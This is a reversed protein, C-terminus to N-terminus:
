VSRELIGSVAHKRKNFHGSVSPNELIKTPINLEALGRYIVSERDGYVYGQPLAELISILEDESPLLKFDYFATYDRNFSPM